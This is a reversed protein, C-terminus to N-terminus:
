YVLGLVEVCWGAIQVSGRAHVVVCGTWMISLWECKSLGLKKQEQAGQCYWAWLTLM